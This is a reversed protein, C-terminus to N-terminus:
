SARRSQVSIAVSLLRASLTLGAADSADRDIHFRLRGGDRAFHVMGRTAGYREDTVTLVPQNRTIELVQSVSQGEGVGAYVVHCGANRPLAAFRRVVISRAGIREGQAAAEVLAALAQDGVVCIVVPDGAGAFSAAPWQVFSPFRMLFTAKVAQELDRQQAHAPAVFALFAMLLAALAGRALPPRGAPM